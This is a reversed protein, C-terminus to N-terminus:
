PTPASEDTNQAEAADLGAKATKRKPSRSVEAEPGAPLAAQEAAGASETPVDLQEFDPRGAFAAGQAQTLEIESGPELTIGLRMLALPSLGTYRFRV